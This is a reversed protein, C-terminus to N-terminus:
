TIKTRKRYVESHYLKLMVRKDITILKDEKKQKNAKTYCLMTDELKCAYLLFLFVGDRRTANCFCRYSNTTGSFFKFTKPSRYVHSVFITGNGQSRREVRM